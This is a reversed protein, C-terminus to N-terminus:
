ADGRGSALARRLHCSVHTCNTHHTSHRETSAALAYQCAAVLAANQERLERLEAIFPAFDMETALIEARLAANETVLERNKSRVDAIDARLETLQRLHGDRATAKQQRLEELEVRATCCDDPPTHTAKM